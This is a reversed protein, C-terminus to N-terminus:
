INKVGRLSLNTYCVFSFNSDSVFNSFPSSLIVVVLGDEFHCSARGFTRPIHQSFLANSSSGRLQTFVFHLYTSPLHRFVRSTNFAQCESQPWLLFIGVVRLRERVYWLCIPWLSHVSFNM